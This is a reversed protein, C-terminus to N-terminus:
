KKDMRRSYYKRKRAQEILYDGEGKKIKGKRIALTGNFSFIDYRLRYATIELTHYDFGLGDEGVRYRTVEKKVGEFPLEDLEVLELDELKFEGFMEGNVVSKIDRETAYLRGERLYRLIRKNVRTFYGLATRTLKWKDFLYLDCRSHMVTKKGTGRTVPIMDLQGLM